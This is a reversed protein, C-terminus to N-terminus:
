TSLSSPIPILIKKLYEKGEQRLIQYDKELVNWEIDEAGPIMLSAISIYRPAFSAFLNFTNSNAM